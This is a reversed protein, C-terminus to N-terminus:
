VKLHNKLLKIAKNVLGPRSVLIEGKTNIYVTTPVGKGVYGLWPNLFIM